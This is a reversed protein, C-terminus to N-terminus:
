EASYKNNQLYFRNKHPFYDRTLLPHEVFLTVILALIKIQMSGENWTQKWPVSFLGQANGLIGFGFLYFWTLICCYPAQSTCM